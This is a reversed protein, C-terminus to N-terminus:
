KHHAINLPAGAEFRHMDADAMDAYFLIVGERTTPLQKSLGTHTLVTTVIEDPLGHAKAYYASFFAHQYTKGIKSKCVGSKGDPEMEILKSVDHLLASAILTDYDIETGFIDETAKALRISGETVCRVHDVLAIDPCLPNFRPARLDDWASQEFVELWIDYVAKKIKPDGILETQPFAEKVKEYSLKM